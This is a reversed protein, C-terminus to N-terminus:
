FYVWNKYSVFFSWNQRDMQVLRLQQLDLLKLVFITYILYSLKLDFQISLPPYRGHVYRNSRFNPHLVSSDLVSRFIVSLFNLPPFLMKWSSVQTSSERLMSKMCILTCNSLPKHLSVLTVSFSLIKPWVCNLPMSFLTFIFNTFWIFVNAGVLSYWWLWQKLAKM